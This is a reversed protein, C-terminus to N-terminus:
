LSSYSKIYFFKICFHFLQNEQVISIHKIGQGPGLFYDIHAAHTKVPTTLEANSKFSETDRLYM